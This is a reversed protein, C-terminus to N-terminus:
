HGAREAHCYVEVWVRPRPTRPDSLYDVVYLTVVSSGPDTVRVYGRAPLALADAYRLVIRHSTEASILQAQELSRGTLDEVSAGVSATLVTSANPALLAADYRLEKASHQKM